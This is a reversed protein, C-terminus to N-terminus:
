SPPLRPHPDSTKLAHYIVLRVSEEVNAEVTTLLMSEM